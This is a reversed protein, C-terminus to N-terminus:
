KEKLKIIEKIIKLYSDVEDEKQNKLVKFIKLKLVESKEIESKENEFDFLDEIRVNLARVIKNINELSINKEGREIAGIYTYHLGSKDSLEWQTLGLKKRYIRVNKGFIKKIDNM